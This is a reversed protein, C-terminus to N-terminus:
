NGSSNLLMGGMGKQSPDAYNSADSVNYKFREM